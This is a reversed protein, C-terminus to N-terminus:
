SLAYKKYARALKEDYKNIRFGGGNYKEAVKEWNKAKLYPLIGNVQLFRGFARLHEREHIYMKDVFEQVSSYGLSIAHFGMIQFSGWSASALAAEKVKADPKIAIAENLRDYEKEGGQYFSRTWSPYLVNSNSSNSLQEPKLGRKALEKWFIHGEFLIKPKGNILFGKGSSEVENIAKVAALELGFEKAFEKLDNESLFLNNTKIIKCDKEFLVQWTKMGVVGDAVLQNKLQFDKVAKDVELTFSTSIYIKYGQRFLMECLTYVEPAQAYYKLTKM